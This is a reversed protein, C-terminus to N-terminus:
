EGKKLKALYDVIPPVDEPAVPARYINRMKDVEAQWDSRSLSPQTLVRGASHCALCDNNIADAATGGPFTRASDPFDVNVSHLTVGGSTVTSPPVAAAAAEASFASQGPWGALMTTALLIMGFRAVTGSAISNSSIAM